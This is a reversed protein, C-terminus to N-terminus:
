PTVISSNINTIEGEANLTVDAGARAYGNESLYAALKSEFWSQTIFASPNNPIEYQAYIAGEFVGGNQTITDQPFPTIGLWQGGNIDKYYINLNANNSDYWLSGQIPNPPPSVSVYVPAASPTSTATAIWQTGNWKWTNGGYSYVQDKSPNPPFSFAM